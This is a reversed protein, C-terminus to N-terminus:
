LFLGSPFIDSGWSLGKQSFLPWQTRDAVDLPLVLVESRCVNKQKMPVLTKILAYKTTSLKLRLNWKISHSLMQWIVKVLGWLLATNNLCMSQNINSDTAPNINQLLRSFSNLCQKELQLFVLLTKCLYFIDFSYRWFYSKFTYSIRQNPPLKGPKSVLKIYDM